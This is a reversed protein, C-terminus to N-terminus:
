TSPKEAAEPRSSILTNVWRVRDDGDVLLAKVLLSCPLAILAGLAGFVWAWLLLSFFSLTPTLGVADGAVKPQILSQIVFNIVSYLVAVLLATKWGKGVLALLTPPLLGLVFGINPVYNTLFSFLGWVLVLPVGCFYLVGIDFVAVVLGFLTSVLWYKRIGRAFSELGAVLRPHTRSAAALREDIGPTDMMMFILASILVLLVSSVGQANSLVSSVVSLVSQPDIGKLQDFLQSESFGLKELQTLLQQYFNQFQNTYKPLEGVVAALCYAIGWLFAALVVLVVIGTFSAALGKPVRHRVLWRHLPYATIMFNLALFGPAIISAAGKFFTFTLGVGAITLLIVTFRPLGYGRSDESRALVGDVDQTAPASSADHDPAADALASRATVVSPEPQEPSEVARVTQAPEASPRRLRDILGGFRQQWTGSM